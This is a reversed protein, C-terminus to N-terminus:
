RSRELFGFTLISLRQGSLLRSWIERLHDFFSPRNGPMIYAGHMKNVYKKGYTQPRTSAAPNSRGFSCEHFEHSSGV